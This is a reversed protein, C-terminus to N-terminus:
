RGLVRRVAQLEAADPVYGMVVWPLGERVVVAHVTAVQPHGACDRLM